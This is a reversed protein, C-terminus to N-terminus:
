NGVLLPSGNQKLVCLPNKKRKVWCRCPTDVIFFTSM